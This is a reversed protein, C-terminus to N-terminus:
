MRKFAFVLYKTPGADVHKYELEEFSGKLLQRVEDPTYYAFFRPFGSVDEQVGENKGEILALLFIGGKPLMAKIKALQELFEKKPVHILSLIAAVMAYPQQSTYEQITTQLIKLGKKRCRRVMESSPDLCLVDFGRDQLWRAFIGTGSGIDLVRMGPQNPLYANVWHTLLDEFPFRNWIEARNDYCRKNIQDIQKTMADDAHHPASYHM